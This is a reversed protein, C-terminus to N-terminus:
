SWRVMSGIITHGHRGSSGIIVGEGGGHSDRPLSSPACWSDIVHRSADYSRIQARATLSTLGNRWSLRLHHAVCWVCLYPVTLTHVIIGAGPSMMALRLYWVPFAGYAAHQLLRGYEFGFGEIARRCRKHLMSLVYYAVVECGPTKFIGEARWRESKGRYM